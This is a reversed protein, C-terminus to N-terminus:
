AGALQGCAVLLAFDIDEDGGVVKGVAQQQLVAITDRALWKQESADVVQAGLLEVAKLIQSADGFGRIKWGIEREHLAQVWLGSFQKHDAIRREGKDISGPSM